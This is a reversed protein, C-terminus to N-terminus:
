RTPPPGAKRAVVLHALAENPDFLLRDLGAFGLQIAAYLLRVPIGTLVRWPGRNLRNLAAIWSLGVRAM